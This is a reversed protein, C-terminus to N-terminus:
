KEGEYIYKQGSKDILTMSVVKNGQIVMNTIMVTKPPKPTKVEQEKSKEFPNEALIPKEPVFPKPEDRRKITRRIAEDISINENNKRADYISKQVEVWSVKAKSDKSRVVALGIAPFLLGALIAIIAIVVLLEVMTFKKM